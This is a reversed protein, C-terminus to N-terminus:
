SRIHKILNKWLQTMEDIEISNSSNTYLIQEYTSTLKRMSITQYRRDITKAYERLTQGSEKPIGNHALQKLLFHYADQYTKENKNKKLRMEFLYSQIHYRKIFLLWAILMIVVIGIGVYWWNIEINENKSVTDVAAKEQEKKPEPKEKKEQEPPPTTTNDEVETDLDVRFDTLNSFGQTPEFPVWGKGPFYVEVWSHANANTVEYTDLSTGAGGVNEEIKEGSTFGKVWRAPIDLTRLMVVMSTSYNDCYGVKSEFLFQDVYDQDKAPVPVNSTNYAFGNQGFYTEIARAKDYRNKEEATVEKALEGVREPLTEPLQTYQENIKGPDKTSANRLSNIEFSPFEYTMSYTDLFFEHDNFKTVLEESHEDLLLDIPTATNLKNIGYPYIVKPIQVNGTFEFFARLEETEVSEDFTKLSINNPDQKIYEPKSSNVWGKGTYVDKTEIRWYQEEATTVHFVPTQDQIFSGGLKTDDEGYGVRRFTSGTDMSSGAGDAASKIFPVPDPWQPELKPAAFGVISSLLVVGILPVMWVAAKKMWLFRISERDMERLFSAVGLAIFSIIFIRVIASDADFVTFTDLVAIYVFTLVVFLFIRNMAVFWYYILYSMLWILLLFLLSRFMPTLNYWDQTILAALNTSLETILHYFWEKSFILEQFYLGNLAYLLGAGKVIFSIWWKIQTLTIFFCFAAYLIFVTLNSTDTIENVPYLWELFLILGAIYLITSYIFPTKTETTISM